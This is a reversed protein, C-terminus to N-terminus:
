DFEVILKVSLCIYCVADSLYDQAAIRDLLHVLTRLLGTRTNM